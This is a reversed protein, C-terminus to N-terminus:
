KLNRAQQALWKEASVTKGGPLRISRSKGAIRIFEKQSNVRPGESEFQTRLRAAAQLATYDKGDQVMIVKSAALHSLLAEIRNREAPPMSYVVLEAYDSDFMRNVLKELTLTYAQKQLRFSLHVGQKVSSEELLPLGNHDHLSLMVQGGTIDGLSVGLYGNSGPVSGWSRQYVRMRGLNGKLDLSGPPTKLVCFKHDAKHTGYLLELSGHQKWAKQVPGSVPLELESGQGKKFPFSLKGAKAVASRVPNKDSKWGLKEVRDPSLWRPCNSKHRTQKTQNNFTVVLSPAPLSPRHVSYYVTISNLVKSSELEAFVQFSGAGSAAALLGQAAPDRLNIQFVNEDVQNLMVRSSAGPKLALWVSKAAANKVTATIVVNSDAPLPIRLKEPIGSLKIYPNGAWAPYALCFLLVCITKLRM